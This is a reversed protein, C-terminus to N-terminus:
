QRNRAFSRLVDTVLGLRNAGVMRSAMMALLSGSFILLKRNRPNFAFRMVKSRPFHEGDDNEGDAASPILYRRLQARTADLSSNM